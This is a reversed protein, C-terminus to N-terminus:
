RGERGNGVSARERGASPSVPRLGTAWYSWAQRAGCRHPKGQEVRCRDTNVWPSVWMGELVVPRFPTDGSPAPPVPRRVSVIKVKVKKAEGKVDEDGDVVEVQWVAQQEGDLLVPQGAEDRVVEQVTVERTSRKFDRSPEVSTVLWAGHPFVEDFSVTLKRQIAM